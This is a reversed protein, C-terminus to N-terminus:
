VEFIKNFIDCRGNVSEATPFVKSKELANLFVHVIHLFSMLFDAIHKLVIILTEILNQFLTFLVKDVSILLM